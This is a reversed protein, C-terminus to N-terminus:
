SMADSVAPRGIQLLRSPELPLLGLLVACLAITLAVILSANYFRASDGWSKTLNVFSGILILLLILTLVRHYLFVIQAHNKYSQQADAM